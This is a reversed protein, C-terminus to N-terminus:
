SVLLIESYFNNIIENFALQNKKGYKSILNISVMYCTCQNISRQSVVLFMNSQYFDESTNAVHRTINLPISETFSHGSCNDTDLWLSLSLVSSLCDYIWRCHITATMGIM